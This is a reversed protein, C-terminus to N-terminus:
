FLRTVAGVVFRDFIQPNSKLVLNSFFMGLNNKGSNFCDILGVVAFYCFFKEFDISLVGLRILAMMVVSFRSM